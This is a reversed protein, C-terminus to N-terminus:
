KILELLQMKLKPDSPRKAYADVIRGEKDIIIIRPVARILYAKALDSKFGGPVNLHVEAGEKGEVM